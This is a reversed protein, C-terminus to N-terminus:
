LPHNTYLFKGGAAAVEVFQLRNELRGVSPGEILLYYREGSNWRAAFEEDTLFVNPAGPAHSGYELNTVRGNLLWVRNLKAYFFVSSFTYYQNDFVVAGPPARRLAEALPRSSLYPDFAILALRAAGTFLVMM